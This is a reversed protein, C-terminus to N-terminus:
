GSKNSRTIKNYKCCTFWHPLVDMVMMWQTVTVKAGAGMGQVGGLLGSSQVEQEMLV